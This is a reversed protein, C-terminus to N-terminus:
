ELIATAPGATLRRLAESLVCLQEGLRETILHRHPNREVLRQLRSVLSIPDARVCGTLRVGLEGCGGRVVQQEPVTQRELRHAARQRGLYRDADRKVQM